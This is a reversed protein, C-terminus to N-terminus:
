DKKPPFLKQIFNQKLPEGGLLVNLNSKATFNNDWLDIAKQYYSVAGEPDMQHRKVIGLNTYTVSRRRNIESLAKEIASVRKIIIKDRKETVDNFDGRIASTISDTDMDMYVSEWKDYYEISTVLNNYAINLYGEKEATDDTNYLAMTLYAAARDTCIVGIEYSDRYHEIQRYANEMSDLTTIVNYFENDAVYQNYQKYMETIPIVRPDELRNVSEYYFYASILIIVSIIFMILILRKSKKNLKFIGSM